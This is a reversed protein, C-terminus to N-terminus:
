SKPCARGVVTALALLKEILVANIGSGLLVSHKSRPSPRIGSPWPRAKSLLTPLSKNRPNFRVFHEGASKKSIKFTVNAVQKLKHPFRESRVYVAAQRKGQPTRHIELQVLFTDAKRCVSYNVRQEVIHYVKPRGPPDHMGDHLYGEFAQDRVRRGVAGPLVSMARKFELYDRDCPDMSWVRM